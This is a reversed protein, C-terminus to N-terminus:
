SCGVFIVGTINARVDSAMSFKTIWHGNVSLRPFKAFCLTDTNQGTLIEKREWASHNSEIYLPGM